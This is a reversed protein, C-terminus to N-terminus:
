LSVECHKLDHYNCFYGRTCVERDGRLQGLAVCFLLGIGQTLAHFLLVFIGPREGSEGGRGDLQVLGLSSGPSGSVSDLNRVFVSARRNAYRSGDEAPSGFDHAMWQLTTAAGEFPRDLIGFACISGDTVAIVTLGERVKEPARIINQILATPGIHNLNKRLVNGEGLADFRQSAHSQRVFSQKAPVGATAVSGDAIGQCCGPHRENPEQV